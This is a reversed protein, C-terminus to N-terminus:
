EGHRFHTAKEADEARNFSEGHDPEEDDDNGLFEDEAARQVFDEAVTVPERWEDKHNSM